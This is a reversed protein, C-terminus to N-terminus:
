DLGNAATRAPRTRATIWADFFGDLSEGSVQEAMARFQETSGNGGRNSTVWRRLLRWFDDNGIRHRLAQLAMGGRQYVAWDFMHEPGPDAVELDWFSADGALADYWEGLWQQGSEGDHTEAYRVEMFTAAGENLWIDRWNAVVVSDGFWQHALEHVVTPVSGSAM